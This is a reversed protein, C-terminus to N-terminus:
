SSQEQPPEEENEEEKISELINLRDKQNPFIGFAKKAYSSSVLNTPRMRLEPEEENEEDNEPAYVLSVRPMNNFMYHVKAKEKEQRLHEFYCIANRPACLQVLVVSAEKITIDWDDQLEYVLRWIPLSVFTSNRQFFHRYKQINVASFDYSLGCFSGLINLGGAKSESEKSSLLGYLMPLIISKLKASTPMPQNGMNQSLIDSLGLSTTESFDINPPDSFNAAGNKSKSAQLNPYDRVDIKFISCILGYCVSRINSWPSNLAAHIHPWLSLVLKM